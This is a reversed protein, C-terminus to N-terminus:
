VLQEYLDKFFDLHRKITIKEEILGRCTQLTHFGNYNHKLLFSFIEKFDTDGNGPDVSIGKLNRDKLHINVIHNFLKDLFCTHNLNQKYYTINGTDYTIKFNSSINIIELIDEPSSEFEFMFILEPYNAGYKEISQIFKHRIKKEIISSSELLPITVAQVNNCIAAECLPKLNINLFEPNYFDKDILNDACISSIPYSTLDTRFIPNSDFSKKTVIWEIHSLELNNLIKFENEWNIPFEQIHKNVPPSLRGQIIGFKNLNMLAQQM